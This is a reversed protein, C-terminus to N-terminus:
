SVERIHEMNLMLKFSYREGGTQVFPLNDVEMWLM